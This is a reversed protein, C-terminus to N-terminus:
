PQKWLWWHSNISEVECHYREPHGSALAEALSRFCSVDSPLEDEAVDPHEWEDLVLFPVVDSMSRGTITLIESNSLFVDNRAISLVYRLIKASNPSADALDVHAFEYDKRLPTFRRVLQGPFELTFDLPNLSAARLGSPSVPVRCPTDRPTFGYQTGPSSVRNGYASVTNVCEMDHKVSVASEQFTILWESPSRFVAMRVGALYFYLNNLAPFDSKKAAESLAQLIEESQM